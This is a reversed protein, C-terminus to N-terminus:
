NLNPNQPRMKSIFHEEMKRETTKIDKMGCKHCINENNAGYPRLEAKDGCLECIGEPEEEIILIRTM